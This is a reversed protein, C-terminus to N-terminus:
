QSTTSVSITDTMYVTNSTSSRTLYGTASTSVATLYGTASTSSRTNYYTGSTSSRTNYYTGSTSKRTAYTTASTSQRTGYTTASTSIRTQYQTATTQSILQLPAIKIATATTMTNYKSTSSGALKYLSVISNTITNSNTVWNTLFSIALRSSANPPNLYLSEMKIANADGLNSQFFSTASTYSFNQNMTKLIYGVTNTNQANSIMISYSRYSTNTRLCVEYITNSYYTTIIDWKYITSSTSARTAYGTVSTSARTAYGTSSTSSRTYYGTYSTSQRTYYGTASTSQRTGYTTASTYVKTGYTTSYTSQRTEYSTNTTVTSKVSTTYTEVIRYTTNNAKVKIQTGTSTETTLPFYGVSNNAKVCLYPKGAEKTEKATFSKTANGAKICLYTAM